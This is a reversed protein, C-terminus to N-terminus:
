CCNAAVVDIVNSMKGEADTIELTSPDNTIMKTISTLNGDAAAQHISRTVDDEQGQNM